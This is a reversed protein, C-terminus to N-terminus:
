LQARRVCEHSLQGAPARHLNEKGLQMAQRRGCQKRFGADGGRKSEISGGDGKDSRLRPWQRCGHATATGAFGHKLYTPLTAQMRQRSGSPNVHAISMCSLKLRQVVRLEAPDAEYLHTLMVNPWSTLTPENSQFQDYGAQVCLEEHPM